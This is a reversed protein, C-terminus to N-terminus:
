ATYAYAFVLDVQMIGGETWSDPLYGRLQLKCRDGLVTDGSKGIKGAVPVSGATEVSANDWIMSEAPIPFASDIDIGDTNNDGFIKVYTSRGAQDFQNTSSVLAEMEMWLGGSLGDANNKSGGSANGLTKFAAFDLAASNAGGYTGVSFQQIFAKFNTVPDVVADHRIYLKQSGLNTPADVLPGYSGNVISGLDVGTAGGALADAVGAGNITESVTLSVAM